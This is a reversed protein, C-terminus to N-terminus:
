AKGRWYLITSGDTFRLPLLAGITLVLLNDLFFFISSWKLIANTNWAVVVLIPGILSVVASM